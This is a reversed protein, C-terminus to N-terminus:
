PYPYDWFVEITIGSFKKKFQQIIGSCSECPQRETYLYLKGIITESNINELTEALASLAKYEADENRLYTIVKTPQFQGGESQSKPKPTPSEKRSTAGTGVVVGNDLHLEIIAVNAKPYPKGLYIKRIEKAGSRLRKKIKDM